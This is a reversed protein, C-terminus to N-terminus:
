YWDELLERIEEQRIEKEWSNIRREIRQKHKLYKVGSLYPILSSLYTIRNQMYPIMSGSGGWSSPELPIKEFDDYNSNLSLFKLLAARRRDTPMEVLVCFLSHMFDFDAYNKEICKNIWEDQKAVVEEKDNQNLVFLDKVCHEFDWHSDKLLTYLKDVIYDVKNIYDNERWVGRLRDMYSEYKRYRYKETQTCQILYKDVFEPSEKLFEILFEGTCDFHESYLVGKLYIDALLEKDFSYLLILDKPTIHYPNFLLEFYLSFVFPSKDYNALITRSAKEFINNDVCAFKKIDDLPRYGASKLQTPPSNFFSLLEGTHKAEIQNEPMEVYFHWLWTNKQTFDYKDILTKVEDVTMFTFLKSLINAPHVNCPTDYHLYLEIIEAYLTNNKSVIDFVYKLGTSFGYTRNELEKDVELATQFLLEYDQISYNKILAETIGNRHACEEDQTMSLYEKRDGNIISFIISKPSKIFKDITEHDFDIKGKEFVKKLHKVILCHCLNDKQLHAVISMVDSYEERVIEYDIYDSKGAGYNKLAFEIEKKYLGRKYINQLENILIKRYQIVEKTANVPITYITFTNRRGGETKSM